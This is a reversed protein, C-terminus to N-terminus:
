EFWVKRKDEPDQNYSITIEEHATIDRLARIVLVKEDFYTEYVANPEYAHNYLSGFGLAIALDKQAEGWLFYYDYLKTHDIHKKEIEPLVLVPCFEIVEGSQIDENSFIGRGKGDVQKVYLDAM